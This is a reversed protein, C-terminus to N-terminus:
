WVISFATAATTGPRSGARLAPPRSELTTEFVSETHINWIGELLQGVVGRHVSVARVLWITAKVHLEDVDRFIKLVAFESCPSKMKSEPLISDDVFSIWDAVTFCSPETLGQSCQFFSVLRM